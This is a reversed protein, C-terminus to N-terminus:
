TQGTLTLQRGRSAEVKGELTNFLFTGSLIRLAARPFAPCDELLTPDLRGAFPAACDGAFRARDPAACCSAM